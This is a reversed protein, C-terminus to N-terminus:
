PLYSGVALVSAMISATFWIRRRGLGKNAAAAVPVGILLLLLIAEM